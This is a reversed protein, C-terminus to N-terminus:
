ILEQWVVYAIANVAASAKVRVQVYEAAGTAGFMPALGLPWMKVYQNTPAIYQRDAMRLTTNSAIAVAGYATTTTSMTMRSAAANPDLLPKVTTTSHATLTTATATSALEVLAPTAAASGDFSIGWEVLRIQGASPIGLQLTVRATTDMAQGAAIGTTTSLASNYAVFLQLM